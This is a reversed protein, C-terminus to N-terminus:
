KSNKSINKEGKNKGFPILMAEVESRKFYVRHGIGYPILKGEKVWNNITSINCKLLAATETRSLYENPTKPEFNKKLDNLQKRLCEDILSTLQEPSVNHLITAKEMKTKLKEVFNIIGM